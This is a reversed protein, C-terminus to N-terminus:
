ENPRDHLSCTVTEMRLKAGTLEQLKWGEVNQIEAHVDFEIAQEAEKPTVELDYIVLNEGLDFTVNEHGDSM